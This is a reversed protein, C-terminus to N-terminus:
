RRGSSQRTRSLRCLRAVLIELVAEEPLERRGRLDLDAQGLLQIAEHVAVSGMVKVRDLAKRAVFGKAGIVEGASVEDTAGSGDLRLLRAYHAHLIAMVQLPHRGGARVMRALAGLASERDGRDIADTLDWPPVGGGDGLYPVVDDGDLRAGPGFATALTELVGALRNLDEGLQDVVEMQAASTLRLGSAAVQEEVFSTRDRRNAGIDVATVHGGAARVVDLLKKAPKGGQVLVLDTSPLPAMLYPGLLALGDADLRDVDRAVVVRRDTLFPPTQAESVLRGVTVDDGDLTLDTVMLSRDGDGVLRRVLEGVAQSVLPEDNGHVLHLEGM